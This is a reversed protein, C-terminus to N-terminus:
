EKSTTVGVGHQTGLFKPLFVKAFADQAVYNDNGYYDMLNDQFVQVVAKKFEVFGLVPGGAPVVHTGVFYSNGQLASDFQQMLWAGPDQGASANCARVEIVFPAGPQAPSIPEGVQVCQSAGVTAKLMAQYGYWPPVLAFAQSVILL